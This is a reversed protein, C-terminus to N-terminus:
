LLGADVLARTTAAIIDSDRCDRKLSPLWIVDAGSLCRKGMGILTPHSGLEIFVSCGSRALTFVGDAFRVPQRVHARWYAPGPMDDPELLKGSLNSVIPLRPQAYPIHEALSHFEDLIPEMLPSHFAHSVNLPQAGVQDAELQNLTADV